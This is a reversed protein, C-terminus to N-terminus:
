VPPMTEKKITKKLAKLDDKPTGHGLFPFDQSMDMHKKAEKIDNQILQKPGPISAYWPLTNGTGHCALCKKQFIPKM